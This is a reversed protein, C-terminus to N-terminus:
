ESSGAPEPDRTGQKIKTMETEEIQKKKIVKQRKVHVRTLIASYPHCKDNYLWFLVGQLITGIVVIALAGILLLWVREYAEQEKDLYGITHWM